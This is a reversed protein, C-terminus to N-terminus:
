VDFGLLALEAANLTMSEGRELKQGALEVCKGMARKGDDILDEANTIRSQLSSSLYRDNLIQCLEECADNSLLKENSDELVQRLREPTLHKEPLIFKKSIHHTTRLASDTGAQPDKECKKKIFREPLLMVIIEGSDTEPNMKSHMKAYQAAEDPDSTIYIHKNSAEDTFTSEKELISTAGDKQKSIRFGDHRISAAYKSSTGHFFVHGLIKKFALSNQPSTRIESVKRANREYAKLPSDRNSKGYRESPSRRTNPTSNNTNIM